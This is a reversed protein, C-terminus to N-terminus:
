FPLEDKVDGVINLKVYNGKIGQVKTQHMYRGQSSKLLQGREAWKKKLAEFEFGKESMKEVLVTKNIYCTGKEEEIKGWIEAHNDLESFRKQNAGIFDILWNWGRISTDVEDSSTLFRKVDESMLKNDDEFIYKTAIEDALMITAMAMAQKETTDNKILEDFYNKYNDTEINELFMQGAFGYNEQLIGVVNRGNEIIKEDIRLDIVRNKAGGGSAEKTIPEEGSTLCCSNWTGIQELGRISGRGRDQGETVLMIISDYNTDWRSKILQMEDGIFPIDHLFSLTRGFAVKTMNLTRVMAGMKPTGWVSAGLFLAVTKGFGSTGWLHTIFPLVGLPKILASAFSTALVIKNYVNKRLDICLNKWTEFDGKQHISKFYSEYDIAGDYVAGNYPAFGDDVWGMRDISKKCQIDITNLSLVDSLYNILEKANNANVEIGHNSLSTIANVTAITSKDVTLEQWYGDKFFSLRVKEMATETNKLRLIPMIPHTCAYVKVVDDEKIVRRYVGEDKAVWEGCKLGFIPSNTFEIEGSGESKLSHVYENQFAGLLKRFEKVCKFERAKEILAVEFAVKEAGTKTFLEDFIRSDYLLEEKTIEGWLENM